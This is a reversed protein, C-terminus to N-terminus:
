IEFIRHIKEKLKEDARLRAQYEVCKSLGTNIMMKVMASMQEWQACTEISYTEKEHRACVGCQVVDYGGNRHWYICNECTNM